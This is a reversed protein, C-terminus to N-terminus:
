FTSAAFRRWTNPGVCMYVYGADYAIQGVEGPSSSSVPPLQNVRFASNQINGDPFKLGGGKTFSFYGDLFSIEASTADIINSQSDEFIHRSSNYHNTQDNLLLRVSTLTNSVVVTSTGIVTSTSAPATFFALQAGNTSTSWEEITSASIRAGVAGHGPDSDLTAAGFVVQGIVDDSQVHLRRAHDASNGRATYFSYVNTNNLTSNDFVGTVGYQTVHAHTISLETRGFGTYTTSGDNSLLTPTIGDIGSGIKLSMVPPATVDTSTSGGSIIKMNSDATVTINRPQYSISWGVGAETTTTNSYEWDTNAIATINFVGGPYQNGDFGGFRMTGLIDGNKIASGDFHSYKSTFGIPNGTITTSTTVGSLSVKHFFVSSTSYLNQDTRSPFASFQQAVGNTLNEFSVRRAFGQDSVVVYTSASATNIATLLNINPM